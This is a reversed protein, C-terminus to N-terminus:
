GFVIQEKTTWLHETYRRMSVWMETCQVIDYDMTCVYLYNHM